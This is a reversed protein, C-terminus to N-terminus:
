KIVTMGKDKGRSIYFYMAQGSWSFLRKSCPPRQGEFIRFCSLDEHFFAGEDGSDRALVPRVKGLQKDLFPVLDVAHYAAGAREVPFAYVVQEAIRVVLVDVEKEM